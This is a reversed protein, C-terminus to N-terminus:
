KDWERGQNGKSLLLLRAVAHFITSVAAFTRTEDTLSACTAWKQVLEEYHIAPLFYGEVGVPYKEWSQKDYALSGSNALAWVQVLGTMLRNMIDKRESNALEWVTYAEEAVFQLYVVTHFLKGENGEKMPWAECAPRLAVAIAGIEHIKSVVYIVRALSLAKTAHSISLPPTAFVTAFHHEPSCFFSAIVIPNTSGSYAPPLPIFHPMSGYGYAFAPLPKPPTQLPPSHLFLQPAEVKWPTENVKLTKNLM